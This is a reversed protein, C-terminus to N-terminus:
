DEGEWYDVHMETERGLRSFAEGRGLADGVWFGIKGSDPYRCVELEALTSIMLVRAPEAGSNRILHGGGRGRLFVELDGEGLETEGEPGRLQVRGAVVLAMEEEAFHEHYPCIAAGPALEYLTAGLLEGGLRKGVAVERSEWGPRTGGDEWEDGLVNFVASV